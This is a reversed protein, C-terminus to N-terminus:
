EGEGKLIEKCVRNPISSWESSILNVIREREGRVGLEYGQEVGAMFSDRAIVKVLDATFPQDGFGCPAYKLLQERIDKPLTMEFEEV